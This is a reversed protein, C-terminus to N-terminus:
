NRIQEYHCKQWVTQARDSPGTETQGAPPELTNAGTGLGKCGSPVTTAVSGPPAQSCVPCIHRDRAVTHVCSQLNSGSKKTHRSLLLSTQSDATCGAQPVLESIQETHGDM